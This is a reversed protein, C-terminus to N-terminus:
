RFVMCNEAIDRATVSPHHYRRRKSAIGGKDIAGKPCWQICAMCQQCGDAFKIGENDLTINNVPCVESCTGCRICEGSVKYQRGAEGFGKIIDMVQDDTKKTFLRSKDLHFGTGGAKIVKAIKLIKGESKRILLRQLFVPFANYSLIYNGPQMVTFEYEVAKGSAEVAERIDETAHGRNGACGIVSFVMQREGYNVGKLCEMVFPPVHSYYSPACIGVRNFEKPIEKNKLLVAIPMTVTDGLERQLGKAIALNNGTGTFYYIVTKM